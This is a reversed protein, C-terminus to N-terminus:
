APRVVPTVALHALVTGDRADLAALAAEAAAPSPAEMCRQVATAFAVLAALDAYLAECLRPMAQVAFCVSNFSLSLVPTPAASLLASLIEHEVEALEGCSAGADIRARLRAVGRAVGGAAEPRPESLAMGVLARRVRLLDAAMRALSGDEESALEPVLELGGVREVDQVVYGSGQRVTVLRAAALRTLASRLTTRNVGLRAALAREPPLREGAKIEGRLIWRRLERECTDVVTEVRDAM